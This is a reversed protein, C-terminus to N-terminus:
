VLCLVRSNMDIRTSGALTGWVSSIVFAILPSYILFPIRRKSIILEQALKSGGRVDIKVDTGSSM